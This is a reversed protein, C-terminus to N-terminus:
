KETWYTASFVLLLLHRRIGSLFVMFIWVLESIALFV